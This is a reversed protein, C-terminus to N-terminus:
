IDPIPGFTPLAQSIQHMKQLLDRSLALSHASNSTSKVNNRTLRRTGQRWDASRRPWFGFSAVGFFRLVTCFPFTCAM